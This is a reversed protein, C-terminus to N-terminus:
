SCYAVMWATQVDTGLDGVMYAYVEDSTILPADGADFCVARNTSENWLVWWEGRPGGLVWRVDFDLYAKKLCDYPEGAIIWDAQTLEEECAVRPDARIVRYM